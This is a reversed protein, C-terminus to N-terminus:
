LLGRLYKGEYKECLMDLIGLAERSVQNKVFSRREELEKRENGNKLPPKWGYQKYIGLALGDAIRERPVKQRKMMRKTAKDIKTGLLQEIKEMYPWPNLVFLEFPIEIVSNFQKARVRETVYHLMYIAKEVPNCQIFLDEWGKAYFPVAEGKYDFWVTFDRPDKGVREQYLAQQKIMYLPHRFLEIFVARTGLANFVPEAYPFILHTTLHLIPKENEITKVAEADGKLFIRKFYVLPRANKFVSSIDAFRFNTERGMMVNYLQIDTWMKILISMVDEEMKGLFGLECIYEILYSYQMLQVRPLSSIIPAMMTKGCGPFGDVFVIKSALYPERVVEVM